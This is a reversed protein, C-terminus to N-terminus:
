VGPFLFAYIIGLFFFRFMHFRFRVKAQILQGLERRITLYIEALSPKM